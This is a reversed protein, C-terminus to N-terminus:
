RMIAEWLPPDDVFESKPHERWLFGHRDSNLETRQRGAVSAAPPYVGRRDRCASGCGCGKGTSPYCTRVCRWALDEGFRYVRSRWVSGDNAFEAYAVVHGVPPAGPADPRPCASRRGFALATLLVVSVVVAVLVLGAGDDGRDATAM